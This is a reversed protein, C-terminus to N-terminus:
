WYFSYGNLYNLASQAYNQTYAWQDYYGYTNNISNIAGYALDQTYSWQDYYGYSNNLYNIANQAYSQTAGWQTTYGSGYSNDYSNLYNLASDAQYQTVAWQDVYGGFLSSLYYPAIKSELETVELDELRLIKKSMKHPRRKIHQFFHSSLQQYVIYINKIDGSLEM